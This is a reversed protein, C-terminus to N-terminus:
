QSTHHEAGAWSLLPLKPTQGSQLLMSSFYLVQLQGEADLLSLRSDACCMPFLHVPLFFFDFWNWDGRFHASHWAGTSLFLPFLVGSVGSVADDAKGGGGFFVPFNTDKAWGKTLCKQM